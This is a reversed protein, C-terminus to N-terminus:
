EAATVTFLDKIKNALEPLVGLTTLVNNGYFYTAIGGNEFYSNFTAMWEFEQLPQVIFGVFLLVGLVIASMVVAGLVGDVVYFADGDRAGNILKPVFIRFLVIVVTFLLFIFVTFLIKAILLTSVYQSISQIFSLKALSSELGQVAPQFASVNFALNYSAFGAGVFLGLSLLSWLTSIIGARFGNKISLLLILIVFMNMVNPKLVKWIQQEYASAFVNQIASIHTIDVLFLVVSILLVAMVAGKAALVIAGLLRDIIGCAGKPQKPRRRKKNKRKKHKRKAHKSEEEDDFEDEEYDEDYDDYDEEDDDFSDVLEDEYADLEREYRKRRRKKLISRLIQMLLMALLLSGVAVAVTLVAPMISKEGGVKAVAKGVGATVLVSVLYEVGWSKVNTFGKVLGIILGLVAFAIIIVFLVTGM